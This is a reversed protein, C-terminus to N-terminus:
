TRHEQYNPLHCKAEAQPSMDLLPRQLDISSKKTAAYIYTGKSSPLITPKDIWCVLLKTWVSQMHEIVCSCLMHIQSLPYLFEANWM